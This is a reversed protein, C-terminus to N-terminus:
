LSSHQASNIIAGFFAFGFILFYLIWLAICAGVNIWLWKKANDSDQQAGIIDGAYFKKEVRTAYVISPIGLPWCCFITTLISEVLYTKPPYGTPTPTGYYGQPVQPFTTPAQYPSGYYPQNEGTFLPILEEINKAQIWNTLGETWIYTEGTIGKFKLEDLTFPGLSNQGDTYYYKRM